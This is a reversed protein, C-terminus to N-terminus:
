IWIFIYYKGNKDRLNLLSYVYDKDSFDRSLSNSLELLNENNDRKYKLNDVKNYKFYLRKLYPKAKKIFEDINIEYQKINKNLLGITNILKNLMRIWQKKIIGYKSCFDDFKEDDKELYKKENINYHSTFENWPTLLTEICSKTSNRNDFAFMNFIYQSEELLVSFVIAEYLKNKNKLWGYIFIRSKYNIQSDSLFKGLETLKYYSGYKQVLGFYTFINFSNEIKKQQYETISKNIGNNKDGFIFRYDVNCDLAMLLQNTIPLREIEPLISKALENYHEESIMRVLIGPCTRGLRGKRQEASDQSIFSNTLNITENSGCVNIKEIMSDFILSLNEITISQEIMNTALIIKCRNNNSYINNKEEESSSSHAIVIDCEFTPIQKIKTEVRKIESIGPLFVLCVGNFKLNMLINVINEGIMEIREYFTLNRDINAYIVNIDYNYPLEFNYLKEEYYTASTCIVNPVNKEYHTVLLYKLFSLCLDSDITHKHPEDIFVLDCFGLYKFVIDYNDNLYKVCDRLINLFHGTTCYILTTNQENTSLNNRIYNLRNSNYNIKYDAAYGISYKTNNSIARNYMNMVGEINPTVYFIIPLRGNIEYFLDIARTPLITSKGTGTPSRFTAYKVNNTFYDRLSIDFLNNNM